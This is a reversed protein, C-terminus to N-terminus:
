TTNGLRRMFFVLPICALIIFTLLLFDNSYALLAAQRNVEADLFALGRPTTIDWLAPLQFHRLGENFPSVHPVLYTHQAQTQHTLVGVLVAVGVSKGLNGILGYFATGVDRYQVALTSFAAATLPVFFFGLGVGQVVNAAIVHTPTINVALRSLMWTSLAMVLLGFAMLSRAGVRKHLWGVLVVTLMIAAGRPAMVLGTTVIPYGWISQLFPPLLAIISILVVSFLAKLCSGLMFNRDGLVHRDIFPNRALISNLVFGYFGAGALCAAIVIQSSDFWDLYEGRDLLFQLSGACLAISLFGAFGFPRSRAGKAEPVFLWTVTFALMGLPLNFFFVGRWSFSEAIFSGLTPGIIPATMIGVGWLGLAMGHDERPHTDLLAALSLPTLAAGFIGQIFRLSIMETLSNSLGSLISFLAFGTYALLLLRKRGFVTALVGSAPMAVAVSILFSTLVWTVQDPGASLAAQVHPLAIGVVSADIEQMLPGLICAITIMARRGGPAVVTGRGSTM